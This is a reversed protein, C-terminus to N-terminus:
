RTRVGTLLRADYRISPGQSHIVAIPTRVLRRWRSTVNPPLWRPPTRTSKLSGTRNANRRIGASYTVTSSRSPKAAARASRPMRPSSARFRRTGHREPRVYSAAGRLGLRPQVPEDSGWVIAVDHRDRAAADTRGGRPPRRRGQRCRSHPPSRPARGAPRVARGAPTASARCQRGHRVPRSAGGPGSGHAARPTSWGM